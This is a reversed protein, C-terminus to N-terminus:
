KITKIQKEKTTYKRAATIPRRKNRRFVCCAFKDNGDDDDYDYHYDTEM